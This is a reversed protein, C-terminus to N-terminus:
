SVYVITIWSTSEFEGEMERACPREPEAKLSRATEEEGVLGGLGDRGRRKKMM